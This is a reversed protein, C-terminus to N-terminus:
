ACMQNSWFLSNVILYVKLCSIIKEIKIRTITTNKTIKLYVLYNKKINIISKYKQKLVSYAVVLNQFNKRKDIEEIINILWDYRDNENLTINASIKDVSNKIHYDDEEIFFANINKSLLKAITIKGSGAVGLVIMSVFKDSM